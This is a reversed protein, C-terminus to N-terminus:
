PVDADVAKTNSLPARAAILPEVGRQVGGAAGETADVDGDGDSSKTAMKKRKGEARPVLPLLLLQLLTAFAQVAATYKFTGAYGIGPQDALYGGLGASGCWGFVAISDLAKWRARTKPPVFDGM